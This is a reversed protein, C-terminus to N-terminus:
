PELWRLTEMEKSVEKAVERSEEFLSEIDRWVGESFTEAAQHADSGAEPTLGLQVWVRHVAEGCIAVPRREAKRSKTRRRPPRVDITPVAHRLTEGDLRHVLMAAGGLEENMSALEEMARPISDHTSANPWQARQGLDHLVEVVFERLRAETWRVPALFEPAARRLYQACTEGSKDAALEAFLSAAEPSEAARPRMNELLIAAVVDNGRTDRLLM